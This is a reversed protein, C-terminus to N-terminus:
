FRADGVRDLGPRYFLRVACTGDVTADRKERIRAGNSFTWTTERVEVIGNPTYENRLIIPVDSPGYTETVLMHVRNYTADCRSVNLHRGDAGPGRVLVEADIARGNSFQQWVTVDLERVTTRYVLECWADDCRQDRVEVGRAVKAVDMPMGFPVNGFGALTGPAASATGTVALLGAALLPRLVRM